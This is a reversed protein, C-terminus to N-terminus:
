DLLGKNDQWTINLKQEILRITKQSVDLEKALSPFSSLPEIVGEIARQAEKWSAFSAAKALRQIAKLSPKKGYGAFATAQEGYPHPSFTVDYFPAPMWRGSDEQLFAWNKSHDDQSCAFLNFIARKFQLQGAVPSKCVLSTAKILDEYDLSPTRFDADLLGCATHMPQKACAKKM